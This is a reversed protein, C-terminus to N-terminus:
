QGSARRLVLEVKSGVVGSYITIDGSKVDRTYAKCLVKPGLQWCLKTDTGNSATQVQWKEVSWPGVDVNPAVREGRADVLIQEMRSRGDPAFRLYTFERGPALMKASPVNPPVMLYLGVLEAPQVGLVAVLPPRPMAFAVTTIALMTGVVTLARSRTLHTDPNRLMQLRRSLHSSVAPILVTAVVPRRLGASRQATLILLKAYRLRESESAGGCANLTRTDCDVEVALRLRRLMWWAGPSWPFLVVVLTGLLLLGPDAARLHQEEHALVLRRLPADLTQLWSPILVAGGHFPSAAPGLREDMRVPVGDVEAVRAQATRRRMQLSAFALLLLLSGSVVAWSRRLPQELKNLRGTWAAPVGPTRRRTGGNSVDGPSALASPVFASVPNAAASMTVAQPHDSRRVIIAFCPGAVLAAAWVFRAPLRGARVLREGLLAIVAACGMSVVAFPMWLALPQM